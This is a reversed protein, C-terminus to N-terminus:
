NKYWLHKQHAAADYVSLLDVFSTIWMSCTSIFKSPVLSATKRTFQIKFAKVKDGVSKQRFSFTIQTLPPFYSQEEKFYFEQSSFHEWRIESNEYRFSVFEGLSITDSVRHFRLKASRSSSSGSHNNRSTEKKPFHQFRDVVVKSPFERCSFLVIAMRCLSYQHFNHHMPM